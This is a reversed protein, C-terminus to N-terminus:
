GNGGGAALETNRQVLFRILGDVGSQQITENFQQRYTQILWAGLVNLDYVRWGAPTRYLRYDIEYQKGNALAVTRVVVDTESASVRMPPYQIQQDPKLQALAGSYLHILLLQFQETVKDRQAPTASRWHRGMSLQTTRRFDVYPLIDRNVVARIRPIDTPAIARERVEDLVQQTATRILAQPDSQDDVQASRAIGPAIAILLVPILLLKKLALTM